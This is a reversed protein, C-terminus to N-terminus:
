QEAEKGEDETEAQEDASKQLLETLKNILRDQAEIIETAEATTNNMDERTKYWRVGIYIWLSNCLANLWNGGIISIPICLALAFLSALMFGDTRRANRIAKKLSKIM